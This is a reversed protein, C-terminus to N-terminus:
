RGNFLGRLKQWFTQKQNQVQQKNEFYNAPLHYKRAVAERWYRPDNQAGGTPDVYNEPSGAYPRWALYEEDAAISQNPKDVSNWRPDSTFGETTWRHLGYWPAVGYTCRLEIITGDRPASEMSRWNNM